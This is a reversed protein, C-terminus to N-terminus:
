NKRIFLRNISPGYILPQDNEVDVEEPCEELKPFLKSNAGLRSVLGLKNYDLLYARQQNCHGCFWITVKMSVFNERILPELITKWLPDLQLHVTYENVVHEYWM